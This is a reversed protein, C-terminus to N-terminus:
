HLPLGILVWFSKDSKDDKDDTNEALECLLETAESEFKHTSSLSRRCEGDLDDNDKLVLNGMEDRLSSDDSTNLSMERTPLRSEDTSTGYIPLGLSLRSIRRAYPLIKEVSSVVAELYRSAIGSFDVQPLSLGIREAISAALSELKSLQVAKSPRFM